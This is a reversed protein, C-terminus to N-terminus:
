RSHATDRERSRTEASRGGEVFWRHGRMAPEHAPIPEWRESRLRRLFTRTADDDPTM